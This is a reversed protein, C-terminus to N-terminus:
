RGGWSPAMPYQNRTLTTPPLPPELLPPIIYHFDQRVDYLDVEKEWKLVLDELLVDVLPVGKADKEHSLIHIPIAIDKWCANRVIMTDWHGGTATTGYPHDSPVVVQIPKFGNVPHKINPDSALNFGKPAHEYDIYLIKQEANSLAARFMSMKMTDPKIKDLETSLMESGSQLPKADYNDQQFDRITGDAHTHAWWDKKVSWTGDPNQVVGDAQMDLWGQSTIQNPLGGAAAIAKVLSLSTQDLYDNKDEKKIASKEMEFYYDTHNTVEYDDPAEVIEEEEDNTLKVSPDANVKAIVKKAKEWKKKALEMIDKTPLQSPDDFMTMKKLVYAIKFKTIDATIKEEEEESMGSGGYDLGVLNDDLELEKVNGIFKLIHAPIKNPLEKIKINALQKKLDDMSFNKCFNKCKTLNNKFRSKRISKRVEPNEINMVDKDYFYYYDLRGAVPQTKLSGVPPPPTGTQKIPTTNVQNQQSILSISSFLVLFIISVIKKFNM